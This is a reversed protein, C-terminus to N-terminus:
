FLITSVWTNITDATEVNHSFDVNQGSADFYKKSDQKFKNSLPYYSSFYYKTALEYEIQDQNRNSATEKM